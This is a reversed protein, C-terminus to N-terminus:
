STKAKAAPQKEEQEPERGGVEPPEKALFREPLGAPPAEVEREQLGPERAPMPISILMHMFYANNYHQQTQRRPTDAACM